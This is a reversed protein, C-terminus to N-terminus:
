DELSNRQRNESCIACNAARTLLSNAQDPWPYSHAYLLYRRDFTSVAEASASHSSEPSARSRGLIRMIIAAIALGALTLVSIPDFILFQQPQFFFPVQGRRAINITVMCGLLVMAPIWLAALWGLRRHIKTNGLTALINQLLYIFVWGMFVIAHAHVLPPSAFSSRGMALQLSFGAIITATMVFASTLFFGDDSAPATRPKDALTAM